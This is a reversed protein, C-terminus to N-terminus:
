VTDNTTQRIIVVFIDIHIINHVVDSGNLFNVDGDIGRLILAWM